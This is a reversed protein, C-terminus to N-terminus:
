KKGRLHLDILLAANNVEAQKGLDGCTFNDHFALMSKLAEPGEPKTLAGGALFARVAAARTETLDGGVADFLTRVAWSFGLSEGSEVPIGILEELADALGALDYHESCCGGSEGSCGASRILGGEIQMPPGNQHKKWFSLFRRIEDDYDSM